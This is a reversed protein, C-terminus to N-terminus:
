EDGREKGNMKNYIELAFREFLKQITTDEQISYIKFFKHVEEDVRFRIVKQNRRDYITPRAM